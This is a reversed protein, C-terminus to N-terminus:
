KLGETMQKFIENTLYIFMENVNKNTRASTELFFMGFDDGLKKGEEETIERYPKDCKNAVLIKCANPESNVKITKIWNSITKFSIRNSVDYILIIGDTKKFYTKTITRFREQGASDWIQLKIITNEINVKKIKFDMGITQSYGDSFSDDTFRSILQTKGVTTDGVILLKFLYDNECGFFMKNVNNVNNTNWNSIDPLYTLSSCNYFINSM